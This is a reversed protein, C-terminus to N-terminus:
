TDALLRVAFTPVSSIVQADFISPDYASLVSFVLQKGEKFDGITVNIRSHQKDLLKPRM